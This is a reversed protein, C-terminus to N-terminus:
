RPRFTMAQPLSTRLPSSNPPELVARCNDDERRVAESKAFVDAFARRDADPLRQHLQRLKLKAEHIRRREPRIM